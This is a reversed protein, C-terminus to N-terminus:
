IKRWDEEGQYLKKWRGMRTVDIPSGVYGPTKRMEKREGSRLHHPPQLLACFDM